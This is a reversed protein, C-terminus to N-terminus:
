RPVSIGDIRDLTIQAERMRGLAALAEDIGPEDRGCLLPLIKYFDPIM